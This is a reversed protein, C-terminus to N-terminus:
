PEDERWRKEKEKDGCQPRLNMNFIYELISENLNVGIRTVAPHISIEDDTVTKM